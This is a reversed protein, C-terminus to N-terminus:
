ALEKKCLLFQAHKVLATREARAKKYERGPGPTVEWIHRYQEDQTEHLLAILQNLKWTSKDIPWQEGELEAIMAEPTSENQKVDQSEDVQFSSEQSLDKTKRSVSLVRTEHLSKLKAKVDYEPAIGLDAGGLMELVFQGPVRNAYNQNLLDYNVFGAAAAAQPRVGFAINLGVFQNMAEKLDDDAYDVQACALVHMGLKLGRTTLTNFDVLFQECTKKDKSRLQRKLNLFEELYILIHPLKELEQYSALRDRRELEQTLHHLHIPVEEISKAHSVIERGGGGNLIALHESREFLRSTKYELDLLSFCLRSPDHTLQVQDLIAAAECSKGMRTGGIIKIHTEALEAILYDSSKTLSRGLCLQLSNREVRSVLDELSPKQTNGQELLAMMSTEDEEKRTSGKQVFHLQPAYTQPVPPVTVSPKPVLFTKSTDLYADYNGVPDVQFKRSEIVRKKIDVRFRDHTYWVFLGILVLLAIGTGFGLYGMLPKMGNFFVDLLPLAHGVILLMPASICVILVIILINAVTLPQNEEEGFTKRTVTTVPPKTEEM